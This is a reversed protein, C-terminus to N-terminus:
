ALQGSTPAGGPYRYVYSPYFDASTLVQVVDVAIHSTDLPMRGSGDLAPATNEVRLVIAFSGSKAAAKLEGMGRFSRRNRLGLLFCVSGYTSLNNVGACIVVRHTRQDVTVYTGALVIGYSIRAEGAPGLTTQYRRLSGAAPHVILESKGGILDFWAPSGLKGLYAETIRNWRPGSIIFIDNTDRLFVEAALYGCLKLRENGYNESLVEQALTIAALDGEEVVYYSSGSVGPSLLGYCALLTDGHIAFPLCRTLVNLRRKAPRYVFRYSLAGLITFLVSAVINTFIDM